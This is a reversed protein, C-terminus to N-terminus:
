LLAIEMNWQVASISSAKVANTVASEFEEEVARGTVRM